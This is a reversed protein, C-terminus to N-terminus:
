AVDPVRADPHEELYYLVATKLGSFSFDWGPPLPRPFNVAEPDGGLATREIEPGGPYGLGLMKAVKDFAEGAADDRTRGLVRYCGWEEVLVLETHGGSAVLTMLPLPVEPDQLLSSFIHAEIHHVGILPLGLGLALAKAVSLGVMISGILGPGYTVAVGDLEEPEVGAESLSRALLPIIKRLHARSALEPVVGGFESHEAQSAVINSLLGKQDDWVAVATEDCSTEIGLIRM